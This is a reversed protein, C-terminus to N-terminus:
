RRFPYRSKVQPMGFVSGATCIRLYCAAMIELDAGLARGNGRRIVPVPLGRLAKCALHIKMIFAWAADGSGLAAM